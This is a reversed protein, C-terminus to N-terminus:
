ERAVRRAGLVILLFTTEVVDIAAVVLAVVIPLPSAVLWGAAAALAALGLFVLRVGRILDAPGADGPARGNDIRAVGAAFLGLGALIAAGIFCARVVLPPAVAATLLGADRGLATGLAFAGLGLGLSLVDIRRAGVAGRARRGGDGHPRGGGAASM